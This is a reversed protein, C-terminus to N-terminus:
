QENESQDFTTDTYTTHYGNNTEPRLANPYQVDTKIDYSIQQLNKSVFYPDALDHLVASNSKSNVYVDGVKCIKDTLGVKVNVSDVETHYIFKFDVGVLGSRIIIRKDTIAYEINKLEGVAKVINAIWIWVPALHLAFFPVVFYWVQKPMEETKIMFLIFTLDIALWLLAIPLMKLVASLVYAKRKPKGRWLIQENDTLVEDITSNQSNNKMFYKENVQM